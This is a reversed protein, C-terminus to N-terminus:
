VGRHCRALNRKDRSQNTIFSYVDMEFNEGADGIPSLPDDSEEDEGDIIDPFPEECFIYKPIANM